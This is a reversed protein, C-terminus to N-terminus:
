SSPSKIYTDGMLIFQGAIDDGLQVINPMTGILEFGWKEVLSKSRLNVDLMIALLYRLSKKRALQIANDLIMDGLGKGRHAKALYFSLEAVQRLAARGRRWPSFYFYGMVQDDATTLVYIGYPDSNTIQFWNEKETVEFTDLDATYGGEIIAENYIEVITPLDTPIARRIQISM